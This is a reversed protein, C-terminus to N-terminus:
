FMGWHETQEESSAHLDHPMYHYVIARGIIRIGTEKAISQSDHLWYLNRTTYRSKLFVNWYQEGNERVKLSYQPYQWHTTHMKPSKKMRTQIEYRVQHIDSMQKVDQRPMKGWSSFTRIISISTIISCEPTRYIWQQTIHWKARPESTLYFREDVTTYQWDTFM